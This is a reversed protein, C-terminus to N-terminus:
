HNFISPFIFLFIFLSCSTMFYVLSHFNLEKSGTSITDTVTHFACLQSHLEYIEQTITGTTAPIPFLRGSKRGGIQCMKQHCMHQMGRKVRRRQCVRVRMVCVWASVRTVCYLYTLSLLFCVHTMCALQSYFRPWQAPAPPM